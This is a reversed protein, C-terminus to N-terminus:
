SPHPASCGYAHTREAGSVLFDLNVNSWCGTPLTHAAPASTTRPSSTPPPPPPQDQRPPQQAPAASPISADTTDASNGNTVLNGNYLRSSVEVRLQNVQTSIQELNGALQATHQDCLHRIALHQDASVSAQTTKIHEVADGLAIRIAEQSREMRLRHREM